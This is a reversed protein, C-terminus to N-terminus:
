KCVWIATGSLADGTTLAVNPPLAGVAINNSGSAPDAYGFWGYGSVGGGAFGTRNLPAWGAKFTAMSVNTINGEAQAPITAGTRTMAFTIIALRGFKYGVESGVTWGAAPTFISGATSVIVPDTTDFADVRTKLADGSTQNSKVRTDIQSIPTRWLDAAMLDSGDASPIVFGYNVTNDM